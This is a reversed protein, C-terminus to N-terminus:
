ENVRARTTENIWGKLKIRDGQKIGEFFAEEKRPFYKSYTKILKQAEDAFDPDIAKAKEFRDVAAWFVQKQELEKSSYGKHYAAYTKGILIHPAGWRPRNQIAKLAHQKAQPYNKEMLLITALKYHLDGLREADKEQSIAENFYKKAKEFDRKSTFMRALSYAADAGPELQYKREAAKAYLESNDCEQRNLMRLIKNVLSIDDRNAEFKPSFIKVLTECDAVGATFFIREVNRRANEINDKKAEDKTADKQKKAMDMFLLYNDIVEEPSILGAKVLLSAAEMTNDIVKAESKEGQMKISEQLMQYAEKVATMDEKRYTFLDGAKRGLIWAKPYKRSNGFYKMRKDYIMMLTDIYKVDKTKQYMHRMIKIGYLYTGKQYAPANFFIYRWHPLAAEYNKHKVPEKFLSYKTLTKVSDVGYKSDVTQAKAVFMSAILLLATAIFLRTKM